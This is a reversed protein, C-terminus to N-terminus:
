VNANDEMTTEQEPEAEDALADLVTDLQPGTLPQPWLTGDPNRHLLFGGQPHEKFWDEVLLAFSDESHENSDM